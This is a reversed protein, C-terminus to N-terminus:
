TFTEARILSSVCPWKWYTMASWSARMDQFLGDNDLLSLGTCRRLRHLAQLLLYEELATTHVDFPLAIERAM